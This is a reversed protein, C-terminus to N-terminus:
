RHAAPRQATQTHRGHPFRGWFYAGLLAVVIVLNLVVGAIAEPTALVCLTLSLLTTAALGDVFWRAGTMLGVGCGLFGIAAIVWGAGMAWILAAPADIRGGLLTDPYPFESLEALKWYVAVGLLHVLSHLVLFLSLPYRWM